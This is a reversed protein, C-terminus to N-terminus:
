GEFGTVSQQGSGSGRPILLMSQFFLPIFLASAVGLLSLLRQISKGSVV